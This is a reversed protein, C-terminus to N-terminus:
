VPAKYYNSFDSNDLKEFEIIAEALEAYVVLKHQKLWAMADKDKNAANATAAWFMNKNQMLWQFAKKDGRVANVFAAMVYFKNEVLWRFASEKGTKLFEASEVLERYNREILWNYAATSYPQFLATMKRIAEGNYDNM